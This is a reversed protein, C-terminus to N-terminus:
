HLLKFPCKKRKELYYLLLRITLLSYLSMYTSPENKKRFTRAHDFLVCPKIPWIEAHTHMYLSVFQALLPRFLCKGGLTQTRTHTCTHAHTRAWMESDRGHTHMRTCKPNVTYIETRVTDCNKNDLDDKWEKGTQGRLSHKRTIFDSDCVYARMRDSTECLIAAMRLSQSIAARTSIFAEHGQQLDSWFLFCFPFLLDM